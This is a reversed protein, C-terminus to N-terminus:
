ETLLGWFGLTGVLILVSDIVQSFNLIMFACM